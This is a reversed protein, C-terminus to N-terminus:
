LNLQISFLSLVCIHQHLSIIKMMYNCVHLSFLFSFLPFVPADMQSPSYKRSLRHEHLEAHRVRLQGIADPGWLFFAILMSAASVSHQQYSQM